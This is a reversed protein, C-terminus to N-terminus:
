LVTIGFLYKLNQKIKMQCSYTLVLYNSLINYLKDSNFDGFSMPFGKFVSVDASSTFGVHIQNFKRTKPLLQSNILVIYKFLKM